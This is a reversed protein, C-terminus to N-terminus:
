VVFSVSDWVCVLMCVLKRECMCERVFSVSPVDTFADSDELRRPMVSNGFKAQQPRSPRNYRRTLPACDAYKCKSLWMHVNIRIKRLRWLFIHVYPSRTDTHTSPHRSPSCALPVFILCVVMWTPQNRAWSDNRSFGVLREPSIMKVFHMVDGNWEICPSCWPGANQDKNLPLFFFIHLPLWWRLLFSSAELLIELTRNRHTKWKYTRNKARAKDIWLLCFPISYWFIKQLRWRWTNWDGACGLSVHLDRVKLKSDKKEGVSM